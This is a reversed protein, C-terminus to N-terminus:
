DRTLLFVKAGCRGTFVHSHYSSHSVCRARWFAEYYRQKMEQASYMKAGGAAAAAAGGGGGPFDGGGGDQGDEQQQFLGLDSVDEAATPTGDETGSRRLEQYTLHIYTGPVRPTNRM